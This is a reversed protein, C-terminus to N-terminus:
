VAATRESPVACCLTCPVSIACVCRSFKTFASCPRTAPTCTVLVEPTGPADEDIMMRPALEMLPLLWGSM